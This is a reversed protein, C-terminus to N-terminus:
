QHEVVVIELVHRGLAGVEQAQGLSALDVYAEAQGDVNGFEVKREAAASAQAAQRPEQTPGTGRPAAAEFRSPDLSPFRGTFSISVRCRGSSGLERALRKRRTRARRILVRISVMAASFPAQRIMSRPPM